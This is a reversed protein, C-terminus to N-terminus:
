RLLEFAPLHESRVLSFDRRDTTLIQQIHLREAIAVVSADVPGLNAAAYIDLLQVCRPLDSIMLPEITLEGRALATVFQREAEQGLYTNLLYCVEPLVTVPVILSHASNELFVRVREHWADDQDALAYLAGTDVLIASRM